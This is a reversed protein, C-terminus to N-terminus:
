KEIKVVRENKVLWSGQAGQQKQYHSKRSAHGYPAAAPLTRHFSMQAIRDGKKIKIGWSGANFLELVATGAFGKDFLGASEVFLSLRAWSSKGQLIGKINDPFQFTEQTHALWCEGPKIILEDTKVVRTTGDPLIQCFEDGLTVDYSDPEILEPNFPEITGKPLNAIQWDSLDCPAHNVLRYANLIGMVSGVGALYIILTSNGTAYWLVFGAFLGFAIAMGVQKAIFAGLFNKYLTLAQEAKTPESNTEM